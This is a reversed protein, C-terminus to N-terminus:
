ALEFPQCIDEPMPGLSIDSIVEWIGSDHERVYCGVSWFYNEGNDKDLDVLSLGPLDILKEGCRTCRQIVRQKFTYAVDSIHTIM